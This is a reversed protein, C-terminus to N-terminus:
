AADSLVHSSLQKALETFAPDNPDFRDSAGFRSRVENMLWQLTEREDEALESIIDTETVTSAHAEM